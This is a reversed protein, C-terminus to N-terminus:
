QPNEPNHVAMLRLSKYFDLTYFGRELQTLFYTEAIDSLEKLAEPLLNFSFLRKAECTTIHADCGLKGPQAAASSEGARQM